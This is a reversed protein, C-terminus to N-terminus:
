FNGQRKGTLLDDIVTSPEDPWHTITASEVVSGWAKLNEVCMKAIADPTNSGNEFFNVIEGDKANRDQGHGGVATIQIKFTGM